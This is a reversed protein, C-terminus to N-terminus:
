PPSSGGLGQEKVHKGHAKSGEQNTPEQLLQTSTFQMSIGERPSLPKCLKADKCSSVNNLLGEQNLRHLQANHHHPSIGTQSLVPDPSSIKHLAAQQLSVLHDACGVRLAPCRLLGPLLECRGTGAPLVPNVPRHRQGRRGGGLSAWSWTSKNLFPQSEGQEQKSGPKHVCHQPPLGPVLM